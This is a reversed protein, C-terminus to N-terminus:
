PYAAYARAAMREGRDLGAFIGQAKLGAVLSYPQAFKQQMLLREVAVDKMDIKQHGRVKEAHLAKNRKDVGVSFDDPPGEPHFFPAIVDTVNKHSTM